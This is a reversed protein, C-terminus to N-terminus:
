RLVVEGKAAEFRDGPRLAVARGDRYLTARSGLLWTQGPEVGARCPTWWGIVILAVLLRRM